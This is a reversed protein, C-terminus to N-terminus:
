NSFSILQGLQGGLSYNVLLRAGGTKVKGPTMGRGGGWRLGVCRGGCGMKVGKVSNKVGQRTYVTNNLMWSKVKKMKTAKDYRNMGTM